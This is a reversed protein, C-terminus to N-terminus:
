RVRRWARRRSAPLGCRARVIAADLYFDDICTRADRALMNMADEIGKKVVFAVPRPM